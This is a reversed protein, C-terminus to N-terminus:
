AAPCKKLSNYQVTCCVCVVNCSLSAWGAGCVNIYDVTVLLSSFAAKKVDLKGFAAWGDM